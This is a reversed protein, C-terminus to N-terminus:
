LGAWGMQAGALHSVFFAVWAPLCPTSTEALSAARDDQIGSERVSATARERPDIQGERGAWEWWLWEGLMELYVCM